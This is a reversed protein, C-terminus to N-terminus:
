LRFYRALSHYGAEEYAKAVKSANRVAPRASVLDNSVTMFLEALKDALTNTSRSRDEHSAQAFEIILSFCEEVLPGGRNAIREDWNEDDTIDM